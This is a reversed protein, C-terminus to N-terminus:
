VPGFGDNLPEPFLILDDNPTEMEQAKNEPKFHSLDLKGTNNSKNEVLTQQRDKKPDCSILISLLIFILNITKM